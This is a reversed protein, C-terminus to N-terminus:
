WREMREPKLIGIGSCKFQSEGRLGFVEHSSKQALREDSEQTPDHLSM